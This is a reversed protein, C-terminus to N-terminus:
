DELLNEPQLNAIMKQVEDSLQDFFSLLCQDVDEWDAGMNLIEKKIRELKTRQSAALQKNTRQAM